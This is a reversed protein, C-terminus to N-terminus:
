ALVAETIGRAVEVPDGLEGKRKLFDVFTEGIGSLLPTDTYGPKVSRVTLWPWEAELVALLGQMGFKAIVYPGFGKVPKGNDSQMAASLVGVVVGRRRPQMLRPIALRLLELPGAVNIRWHLAAEADTVKSLSTLQLPASAALVVGDLSENMAALSEVTQAISKPLCLDLLIAAGNSATAIAEARERSHAYTVIPRLKRDGLARCVEAGIGGSGGVVLIM